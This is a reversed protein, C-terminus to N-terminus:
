CSRRRRRRHHMQSVADSGWPSCDAVAARTLGYRWAAAAAAAAVARPRALPKLVIVITRDCTLSIAPLRPRGEVSLITIRRLNAM